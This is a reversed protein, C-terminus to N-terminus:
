GHPCQVMRAPRGLHAQILHVFMEVFQPHDMVTPARLYRLGLREAEERAEVDLDYLIEIHDSLFGIPVLVAARKGQTKLTRLVACVDPELWPQTPPGSRSQYALRWDDHQLAQAVRQSSDRFAAEYQSRRAMEVPISHASFVLTTERAPAAQSDLVTRVRDAQAQIFLPHDHWPKLYDYRIGEGGVDAKAQNVNEVYREFSAACRHPALILGVGRQLGRNRIEQLTERLFPHWNRLGIFVPLSVDAEGLRASLEDVFRRVHGNYPSAGGARAYHRAVEALRAAPITGLVTDRLSVARGKPRAMAKPSANPRPIPHDQAVGQAVYQLFPQVDEPRPPGGFGIVLLHDIAQTTMQGKPIMRTEHTVM